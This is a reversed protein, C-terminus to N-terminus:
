PHYRVWADSAIFWLAGDPAVLIKEPIVGQLESVYNTWNEGDFRVVGKKGNIFWISGDPAVTLSTALKDIEKYQYTKWHGNSYKMLGHNTGIWANNTEDLVFGGYTTTSSNLGGAFKWAAGSYEFFQPESNYNEYSAWVKGNPFVSIRMNNMNATEDRWPIPITDVEIMKHEVLDQLAVHAIQGYTSVLWISGDPAFNFDEASMSLDYWIPDQGMRLRVLQNKSGFTILGWLEGAKNIKYLYMNGCINEPNVNTLDAKNECPLEQSKKGDYRLLSGPYPQSLLLSGDPSFGLVVNEPILNNFAEDEVKEFPVTLKTLTGDKYLGLVNNEENLLLGNPTWAAIYSGILKRNDEAPLQYPVEEVIGSSGIKYIHENDNSLAIWLEGTPIQLVTRLPYIYREGPLVVPKLSRGDYGLLSNKFVFYLKGDLGPFARWHDLSPLNPYPTWNDGDFSYLPVRGGAFWLLGNRSRGLIYANDYKPWSKFEVWHDNEYFFAREGIYSYAWLEDHTQRFYLRDKPILSQASWNKGDFMVVNGDTLTLWIRNNFSALNMIDGSIVTANTYIDLKQSFIEWRYITKGSYSWVYGGLDYVATQPYVSTEATQYVTWGPKMGPWPQAVIPTPQPKATATPDITPVSSATPTIIPTTPTSCSALAIQFILLLFCIKTKM